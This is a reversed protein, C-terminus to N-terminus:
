VHLPLTLGITTLIFVFVYIYIYINVLEETSDEVSDFERLTPGGHNHGM